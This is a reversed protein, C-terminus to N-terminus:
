EPFVTIFQLTLMNSSVGPIGVSVPHPIAPEALVADQVSQITLLPGVIKNNIQSPYFSPSIPSRRRRFGPDFFTAVQEGPGLTDFYSIIPLPIDNISESWPCVMQNIAPVYGTDSAANSTDCVITWPGTGTVTLFKKRQFVQNVPDYMGITQGVTPQNVPYTGGVTALQFHTADTVATVIVSLTPDFSFYQPWPSTDVWSSSGRAWSVQLVIDIPEETITGPFIEDDAPMLDQLYTLVTSIQSGNPIRSGGPRAPRLTFVFGMSGPYLIAPYTFVQQIAIAPTEAATSQYQADNGSAPPNSKLQIARNILEIDSEIGHGGSLGTIGDAQTTVICTSFSGPRPSTWTLETGGDISTQEGVDIGSVPLQDGNLYLATATCKYRLGTQIEKLEDGSFITTGGVSAAVTVYGSAGIAPLRKMGLDAVRTDLHTGTSTSLAVGNNVVVANQFVLLMVDALCSADIWPFTNETTLANPNRVRYSRLYLDRTETRSMTILTGPLADLPM